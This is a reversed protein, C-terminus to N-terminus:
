SAKKLMKEIMGLAQEPTEAINVLSPSLASLFDKAKTNQTLLIVKKNEKLALAVESLTGAEMGCAILVDSTLANIFNRASNIGTVIVIDAYSTADEKLKSPVIAVTEGASDKAGKLGAEMVGFPRGGTM